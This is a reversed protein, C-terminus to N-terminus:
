SFIGHICLYQKPAIGVRSCFFILLKRIILIFVPISLSIKSAQQPERIIHNSLCFGSATNM